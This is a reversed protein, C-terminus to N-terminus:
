AEGVVGRGGVAGARAEAGTADARGGRALFGAAAVVRQEPEIGEGGTEADGVAAVHGDRREVRLMGELLHLLAVPLHQEVVGAGRVRPVPWPDQTEAPVM